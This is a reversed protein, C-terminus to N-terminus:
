GSGAPMDAISTWTDTAPDYYAGDTLWDPAKCSAHPACLFDSHGGFVLYRGDVWVGHAEWRPSLPGAAIKTWVGYARPLASTTPGPAAPVSAGGMGPLILAGAAVILAVAVAVALWPGLRPPRTPGGTLGAVDLPRFAPRGAQTRLGSRLAEAARLNGAFETDTM